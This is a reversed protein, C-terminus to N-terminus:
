TIFQVYALYVYLMSSNCSTSSGGSSSRVALIIRHPHYAGLLMNRRQLACCQSLPAVIEPDVRPLLLRAVGSVVALDIHHFLLIATIATYLVKVYKCGNM